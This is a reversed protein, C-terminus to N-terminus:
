RYIGFDRRVAEKLEQMIQPREPNIIGNRPSSAFYKELMEIVKRSAVLECRNKWHGCNLAAEDSGQVDSKYIADLFGAYAEKKEQFARDDMHQKRAYYAQLATTLLSGIIGGNGAASLFSIMDM